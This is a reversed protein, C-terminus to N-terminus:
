PVAMPHSPGASHVLADPSFRGHWPCFVLDRNVGPWKLPEIPWDIARKMVHFLPVGDTENQIDDRAVRRWGVFPNSFLCSIIPLLERGALMRVRNESETLWIIGQWIGAMDRQYRLQRM